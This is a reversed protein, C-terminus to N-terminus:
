LSWLIFMRLVSRSGAAHSKLKQQLTANNKHIKGYRPATEDSIAECSALLQRELSKIKRYKQSAHDWLTGHAFVNIYLLLLLFFM